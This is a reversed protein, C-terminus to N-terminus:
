RRKLRARLAEAGLLLRPVLGPPRAEFTEAFLPVGNMREKFRTVDPNTAADIGGLDYWALGRAQALRIAEWTLFYGARLPRGADATAGFLYTACGGATGTVIGAVDQGDKVAILTEVAYDQHHLPFHFQPTIEPRFGKVAQVTGFMALFRAEIAPDTGRQLTMGSKLAFRLDTRWKGHLAAMLGEPSRTLDLAISRYCPARPTSAFGAQLATRRVVEPDQRALVSLRLRLVHGGQGAIRDRLATLIAGLTATDPALGGKPLILPGSPVWAIGRGLGPVRRIRVAAAAVLVGAQEVALFRAEAGIRAAAAQTYALGQEFGLDWFGAALVPWDASAVPRVHLLPM